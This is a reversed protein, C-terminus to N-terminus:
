KCYIGNKIKGRSSELFFETNMYLPHVPYDVETIKGQMNKKNVIIANPFRKKLEEQYIEGVDLKGWAFFVFQYEDKYERKKFMINQLDTMGKAYKKAQDSNKERINFINEIHITYKEPMTIEDQEYAKEILGMVKKMTNDPRTLVPTSTEYESEQLLEFIDEDKPRAEGPNMMVVLGIAKGSGRVSHFETNYRFIQIGQKTKRSIFHAYTDM